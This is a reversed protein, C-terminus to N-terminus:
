KHVFVSMCTVTLYEAKKIQSVNPELGIRTM